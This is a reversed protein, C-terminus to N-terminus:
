SRVAWSWVFGNQPQWVCTVRGGQQVRHNVPPRFSSRQIKDKRPAEIIAFDLPSYYSTLSAILRSITGLWVLSNAAYAMVVISLQSTGTPSFSRSTLVTVPVNDYPPAARSSSGSIFNGLRYRGMSLSAISVSCSARFSLLVMLSSHLRGSLAVASVHDLRVGQCRLRSRRRSLSALM